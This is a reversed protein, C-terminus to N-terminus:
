HLHVNNPISMSWLLEEIPFFFPSTEAGILIAPADFVPEGQMAKAVTVVVDPLWYEIYEM